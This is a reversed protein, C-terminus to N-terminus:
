YIFPIIKKNVRSKYNNYEPYKKSLLIEEEKIKFHLFVILILSFLLSLISGWFLSWGIALTIVGLYMPHRVISYIGATVLKANKKPAVVPTLSIGLQVGSTIVIVFGIVLLIMGIILMVFLKIRLFPTSLLIALLISMQIVVYKDFYNTFM